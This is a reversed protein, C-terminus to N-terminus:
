AGSSPPAPRPTIRSISPRKEWTSSRQPLVAAADGIEQFLTLSQEFCARAQAYDGADLAAKGQATLAAATDSKGGAEASGTLNQGEADQRAAVLRLSEASAAIGSEDGAEKRLTLCEELYARAQALDGQRYAVDGLSHLLAAVRNRSGQERRITLSEELCARALALDGQESAAIRLNGLAAAIDAKDGSERYLTLSQEYCARALAFDGQDLAANGRSTLAGAISNRADTNEDSTM